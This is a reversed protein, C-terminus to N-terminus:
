LRAYNVVLKTTPKGELHRMVPLNGINAYWSWAGTTQDPIPFGGTYEQAPSLASFLESSSSSLHKFLFCSFPLQYNLLLSPGLQSEQSREM